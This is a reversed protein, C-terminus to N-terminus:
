SIFRTSLDEQIEPERDQLASIVHEEYINNSCNDYSIEEQINEATNRSSSSFELLM